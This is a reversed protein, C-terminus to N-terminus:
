GQPSQFALRAEPVPALRAEPVPALRAEPVPALRAEPVPAPSVEPVPALRAEPVPAPSVEPMTASRAEPAARVDSTVLALLEGALSVIAGEALGTARLERYINKALLRVARPDESRSSLPFVNAM